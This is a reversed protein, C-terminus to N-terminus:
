RAPGGPTQDPLRGLVARLGFDGPLDSVFRRLGFRRRVDISLPRGALHPFARPHAYVPTGEGALPRYGRRAAESATGKRLTIDGAVACCIALRHWDFLLADGPRLEDRARKTLGAGTGGPL